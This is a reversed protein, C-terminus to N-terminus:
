LQPTELFLLAQSRAKEQITQDFKAAIETLSEAIKSPGFFNFELWPIKYKEEMDVMQNKVKM